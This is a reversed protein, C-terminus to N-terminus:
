EYDPLRSFPLFSLLAIPYMCLKGIYCVVGSKTEANATGYMRLGAIMRIVFRLESLDCVSVQL